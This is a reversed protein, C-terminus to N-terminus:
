GNLHVACGTLAAYDDHVVQVRFAGMLAVRRPRHFHAALDFRAVHPAM